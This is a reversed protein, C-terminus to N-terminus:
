ECHQSVANRNQEIRDAADCCEKCCGSRNATRMGCGCKIVLGDHECEKCYRTRCLNVKCARCKIPIASDWTPRQDTQCV